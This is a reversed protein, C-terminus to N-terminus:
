RMGGHMVIYGALVFAVVGLIGVLLRLRANEEYFAMMAIHLAVRQRRRYKETTEDDTHEFLDPTFDPIKKLHKNM